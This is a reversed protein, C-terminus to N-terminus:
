IHILSLAPVHYQELVAMVQPTYPGPGDDFTLAVVRQGATWEDYPAQWTYFAPQGLPVASHAAPAFAVLAIGLALAVTGAGRRWMRGM